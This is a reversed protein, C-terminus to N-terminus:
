MRVVPTRDPTRALSAADALGLAQGPDDVAVAGDLREAVAVVWVPEVSLLLDAAEDDSVEWTPL